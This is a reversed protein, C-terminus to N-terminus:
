GPNIVREDTTGQNSEYAGTVAEPQGDYSPIFAVEVLTEGSFNAADATFAATGDTVPVQGNLTEGDNDPNVEDYVAWSLVADDPLNAEVQVEIIGGEWTVETISVEPDPAPEDSGGCGALLLAIASIAAAHRM